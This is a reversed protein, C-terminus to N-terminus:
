PPRSTSRCWCRVVALAGGAAPGLVLSLGQAAGVLGVARTRDAESTTTASAAALAAVPLAGVGVGFLVSRTVLM